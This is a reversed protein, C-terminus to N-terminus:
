WADDREYGLQILLDGYREKFAQTVKPTFHNRWDGATGKRYHHNANEQGLQRGGSLRSFAHRKLIEHWAGQTCATHPRPSGALRAAWRGLWGLLGGEDLHIGLFELIRGFEREPAVTLVEFRSEYVSPHRYNWGALHEFYASCYDIEVLLGDEQDCDQLRARHEIMWPNVDAKAPHSNKHSFYGSVVIDRPDRIVHFGRFDHAAVTDLYVREANRFVLLDCEPQAIQELVAETRRRVDASKKEYQLPLHQPLNHGAFRLGAVKALDALILGVYTSACKHHGFYVLLPRANRTRAPAANERIRPATQLGTAM